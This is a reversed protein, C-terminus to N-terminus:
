SSPRQARALLENAIAVDLAGLGIMVVVPLRATVVGSNRTQAVLAPLEMRMDSRTLAGRRVMAALNGRKQCGAWDDVVVCNSAQVIDDAIEQYSGACCVVARDSVMARTLF